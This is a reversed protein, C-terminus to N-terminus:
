SFDKISEYKSIVIKIIQRTHSTLSTSTIMEVFKNSKHDGGTLINVYKVNIPKQCLTILLLKEKRQFYIGQWNVSDVVM